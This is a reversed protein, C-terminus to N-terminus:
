DLWLHIDQRLGKAGAIEEAQFKKKRLNEWSKPFGRNKKSQSNRELTNMVGTDIHTNKIEAWM